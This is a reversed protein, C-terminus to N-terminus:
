HSRAITTRWGPEHWKSDRLLGGELAGLMAATAGALMAAALWLAFKMAAKRADDAAKKAQMIVDSVRKEAEPESLGTRAAVVKNVYTREAPALEGGKQLAPVMLRKLEDRTASVNVTNSLASGPGPSTATGARAPDTRLLADIFGDNADSPAAAAATAGAAPLAGTTASSVISTAATGLVTASLVTAVAWTVLGHATDRFYVEDDHVGIWRMRLRGALYGGVASALMAMALLYLGWGVHFTTASVGEGAWPSIASLGLGAGLALLFLTLAASAVAGAFVAGWSLTAVEIQDVGRVDVGVVM